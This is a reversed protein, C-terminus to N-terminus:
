GAAKKTSRPATEEGNPPDQPPDQPPQPAQQPPDRFLIMLSEGQPLAQIWGAQTQGFGGTHVSIAREGRDIRQVLAMEMPTEPTLVIQELGETIILSLRM